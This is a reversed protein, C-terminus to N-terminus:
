VGFVVMRALLIESCKGLKGPFSVSDAFNTYFHNQQSKSKNGRAIHRWLYASWVSGNESFLIKSFKELKGPFSVNDAFNTYFHNRLTVM